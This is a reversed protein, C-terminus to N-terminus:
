GRVRTARFRVPGSRCEVTGGIRGDDWSSPQMFRMRVTGRIRGRKVRGKAVVTRGTYGLSDVFEQQRVRFRGHRGLRVDTIVGATRYPHDCSMRLHFVASRIREGDPSISFRVPRDQSTTGRYVKPDAAAAGAPTLLAVAAAAMCTWLLPSKM